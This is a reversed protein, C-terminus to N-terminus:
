GRDGSNDETFEEWYRGVSRNMELAFESHYKRACFATMWDEFAREGTRGDFMGRLAEEGLIHYGNEHVIYEPKARVPKPRERQQATPHGLVLMAAPVVWGPLGLLAKHEEYRELIDGIYCSGLGLSEAAVVANQAAILADSMALLLDGPGPQRPEAGALRYADYWKRCDACFILVMPATAIFPQDDCTKALTDKLSQDTMNLVTYLQQGGATPAQAAAALILARDEMSVDEGTFIRVSKRDFLGQIVENM